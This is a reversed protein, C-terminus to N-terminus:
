KPHVHCLSMFREKHGTHAKFHPDFHVKGVSDSFVTEAPVDGFIGDRSPYPSGDEM